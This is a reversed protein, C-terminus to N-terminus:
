DSREGSRAMEAWIRVAAEDYADPRSILIVMFPPGDTYSKSAGTLAIQKDDRWAIGNGADGITRLLKDSDGVTTHWFEGARSAPRTFFFAVWLKVPGELPFGEKGALEAAMVQSTLRMWEKVSDSEKSVPYPKRGERKAKAWAADTIFTTKSGKPRARGWVVIEALIDM